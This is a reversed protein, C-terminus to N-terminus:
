HWEAGFVFLSLKAMLLKSYLLSFADVSVKGSVFRLASLWMIYLNHLEFFQSIYQTLFNRFDLKKIRINNSVFLKKRNTQHILFADM